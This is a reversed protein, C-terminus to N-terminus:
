DDDEDKMSSDKGSSVHSSSTHVNESISEEEDYDDRMKLFCSRSIGPPDKKVIAFEVADHEVDLPSQKKLRIIILPM